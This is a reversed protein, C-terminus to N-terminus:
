KGPECQCYNQTEDKAPQTAWVRQVVNAHVPIHPARRGIDRLVPVVDAEAQAIEIAVVSDVLSHTDGAQEQAKLRLHEAMLMESPLASLATTRHPQCQELPVEPNRGETEVTDFDDLTVVSYQEDPVPFQYYYALIGSCVM